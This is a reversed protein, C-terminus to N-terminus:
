FLPHVTLAPLRPPPSPDTLRQNLQLLLPGRKLTFLRTLRLSIGDSSEGARGYMPTCLEQTPITRADRLHVEGPVVAAPAPSPPDTNEAM